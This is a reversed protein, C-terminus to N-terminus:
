AASFSRSRNAHPLNVSRRSNAVSHQPIQFIRSRVNVLTFGTTRAFAALYADTWSSSNVAGATLTRWIEELGDPEKVFRINQRKLLEDFVHWAETGSMADRGLVHHNTLLRLLSMQTVRSLIMWDRSAEDAWDQAQRANSHEGVALAVWVNVDPFYTM